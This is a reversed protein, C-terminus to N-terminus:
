KKKKSKLKPLNVSSVVNKKYDDLAAKINKNVQKKSIKKAPKDPTSLIKTIEENTYKFSGADIAKVELIHLGEEALFKIRESYEIRNFVNVPTNSLKLLELFINELDNNSGNYYDTTIPNQNYDANGYKILAKLRDLEFLNYLKNFICM